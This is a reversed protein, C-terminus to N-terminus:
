EEPLEPGISIIRYNDSERLERKLKGAFDPTEVLWAYFRDNGPKGRRPPPPLLTKDEYFADMMGGLLIGSVVTEYLVREKSITKSGALSAVNTEIEQWNSLLLKTFDQTHRQLGEKVRDIDRERIVPMSPRIEYEDRRGVLREDELTDAQKSLDSLTIK